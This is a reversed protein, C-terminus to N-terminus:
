WKIAYPTCAITWIWFFVKVFRWNVSRRCSFSELVAQDATYVIDRICYPRSLLSICHLRCVHYHMLFSLNRTIHADTVTGCWQLRWVIVNNRLMQAAIIQMPALWTKSARVHSLSQTTEYLKSQGTWVSSCSAFSTMISKTKDLESIQTKVHNRSKRCRRLVYSINKPGRSIWNGISRM